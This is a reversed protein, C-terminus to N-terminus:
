RRSFVRTVNGGLLYLLGLAVGLAALFSLALGYKFEVPSFYLTVEHTGPELAVGQFVGDVPFVEAPLGDVSAEWGPYWAQALVLVGPRDLHATVNTRAARRQRIAAPTWPPDATKPLRLQKELLPAQHASLQAPDFTEVGRGEYSIWAEPRAHGDTFLAAGGPLVEVLRLQVRLEGYPGEAGSRGLVYGAVAARRFLLPEAHAADLFAATRRLMIGSPAPLLNAARLASPDAPRVSANVVPGSVAELARSERTGADLEDSSGLTLAPMATLWMDLAALLVLIAAAAGKRPRVLTYGILLLFLAALTAAWAFTTWGGPAYMDQMWGAAAVVGAAVALWAFCTLFRRAAAASEEAGLALWTDAAAVGVLAWVFANAFTLFPAPYLLDIGYPRLLLAIPIGGATFVLSAIWWSEIRRRQAPLAHRRVALWLAGLLLPILGAHFTAMYRDWSPTGAFPSLDFGASQGYVIASFVSWTFPPAEPATVPARHLLFVIYPVLQVSLLGTGFALAMGLGSYSWASRVSAARNAILRILFVLALFALMVGLMLPDGGFASVAVLLAGIAWFRGQGLMQREMFVVLLPFFPLVDAMPYGHWLVFFPSFGWSVGAFVSLLGSFGLRRCALYAVWSAAILRLFFAVTLAQSLPLIYFPLSFPSLCRTEWVAFFPMGLNTGTNWLPLERQSACEHLQGYWPLYRATLLGPDAPELPARGGHIAPYILLLPLLALLLLCAGDM